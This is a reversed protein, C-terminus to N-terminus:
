WPKDIGIKNPKCNSGKVPKQFAETITKSKLIELCLGHLGHMNVLLMM